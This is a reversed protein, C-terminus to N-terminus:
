LALNMCKWKCVYTMLLQEVSKTILLRLSNKERVILFGFKVCVVAYLIVSKYM